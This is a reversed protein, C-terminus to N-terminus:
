TVWSYKIMEKGLVRESKREVIWARNWPRCWSNRQKHNEKWSAFVQEKSSRFNKIGRKHCLNEAKYKHDHM